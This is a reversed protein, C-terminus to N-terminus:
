SAGLEVENVNIAGIVAIFTLFKKSAYSIEHSVILTGKIKPASM